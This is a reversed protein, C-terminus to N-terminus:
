LATAFPVLAQCTVGPKSVDQIRDFRKWDREPSTIRDEIAKQPSSWGLCRQGKMRVLLLTLQMRSQEVLIM